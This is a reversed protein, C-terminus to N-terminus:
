AGASAGVPRDALWRATPWEEREWASNWFLWEYETARVFAALMRERMPEDAAAALRDTLERASLVAAAFEDDAYTSIWRHYPHDAAGGTAELITSGVHQYVWFCPLLAAVVVPYPETLANARLFSTYALCSPSTEVGSVEQETLGFEEVYGAHLRREEVLAGQAAGALFAADEADDARSSAAALAQAFGVLYRADQVIYFAFRDRDLSGDTLAANFPHEVIAQQLDATRAWARACFGDAPPAPLKSM